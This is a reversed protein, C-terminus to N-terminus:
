MFSQVQPLTITFSVRSTRPTDSPGTSVDVTGNLHQVLCKVLALGLGTGQVAKQTMGQGRHFKDFIHRLDEPSIGQGINSLSMVIQKVSQQIQETVEIVVTTNPHSYKGANTLLELLIRNLSEADTNIFLSKLSSNITLTLGKEAWRYEFSKALHKIMPMLDIKQLQLQSQDSELQQLSLLDNILEIEQNCQQELIELYKARRELDLKPQRLMRIALSMATLPTRLEHNMSSLFEDKLRNLEKLQGMQQRTREYLDAQVKLSHQLQATREEVLSQVQQLTQNQIITSSVQRSVWKVLNIENELWPRPQSNQLVLFGLVKVSLLGHNDAGVLPCILLGPLLLQDLLSISQHDSKGIPHDPRHTIVIPEPAQKLAEQYWSCESVPFSQNLLADGTSFLDTTSTEQLWECVVTLDHKPSHQGPLSCCLPNTEDLLLLLARSVQLAEAVATTAIQFIELLNLSSHMVQSLQNLLTQDRTAAKVQHTLQVQSIAVSVWQSVVILQEQETKTWQYPQAKGLVIVGNVVSQFKTSTKLIARASLVEEGLDLNSWADSTQWDSIALVPGSGLDDETTLLELLQVPNKHYRHEPDLHQDARWWALQPTTSPNALAGILCSDVQFSEGIAKALMALLTQTDSTNLITNAIQQGIQALETPYPMLSGHHEQSFTPEFTGSLRSNISNRRPAFIASEADM